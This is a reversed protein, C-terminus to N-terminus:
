YVVHSVKVHVNAKSCIFDFITFLMRILKCRQENTKVGDSLLYVKFPRIPDGNESDKSCIVEACLSVGTEVHLMTRFIAPCM